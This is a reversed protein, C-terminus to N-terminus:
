LTVFVEKYLHQTISNSSGRERSCWRSEQRKLSIEARETCRSVKEGQIPEM